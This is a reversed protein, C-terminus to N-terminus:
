VFALAAMGIDSALGINGAKRTQKAQEELQDAESRRAKSQQRYQRRLLFNDQAIKRATDALIQMPAGELEVGASAYQNQIDALIADAEEAGEGAEFDAILDLDAALLRSSAASKSLYDAQSRSQQYKGYASLGQGAGYLGQIGLTQGKLSSPPLPM